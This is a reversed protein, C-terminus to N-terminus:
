CFYYFKLFNFLRPLIFVILLFPSFTASYSCVNGKKSFFSPLHMDKEKFCSSLFFCSSSFFLFFFFFLFLLLFFCFCNYAMLRIKGCIKEWKGIGWGEESHSRKSSPVLANRTRELLASVCRGVTPLSNGGRAPCDAPHPVTWGTPHWASSDHVVAHKKGLHTQGTVPYKSEVSRGRISVLLACLSVCRFWGTM